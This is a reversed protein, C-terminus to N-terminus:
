AACRASAACVRNRGTRKALYLAEDASQILADPVTPGHATAVGASLTVSVAVQGDVIPHRSVAARIREAVNVAIGTDAHPLVVLFEEGGFRGVVDYSRIVSRMRAVTEKLVHDGVLHGYTDNIKKFHDIDMMLLSLPQNARVARDLEEVLRQYAAGRNYTGTLPDRTAQIRLAERAAVLEEHLAIIRRGIGVRVQLESPDFPKIMYDDAGAELGSVIEKRSTKATLLIMYLYRDTPVEERVKRCIDVGDMGPMIWDLVALRPSDEGQLVNWAADGSAATVVEYGWKTLMAAVMKRTTTDDDAVLVKM